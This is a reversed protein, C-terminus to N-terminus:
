IMASIKCRILFSFRAAALGHSEAERAPFHRYLTGAGVGAQKAGEDLNSHAGSRAIENHTLARGALLPKPTKRTMGHKEQSRLGDGSIM